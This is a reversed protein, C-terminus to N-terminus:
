IYGRINLTEIKAVRGGDILQYLQVISDIADDHRNKGMQTYTTMEEMAKRYDEDWLSEDLFYFERKVDPAYQIIKGEKSIKNSARKTTINMKYGEKRLMEDIDEAYFDGGNNEEFQGKQPKHKLIADVVKPRTYTKDRNDFVWGIIYTGHDFVAGIPMSLSDAGRYAPDCAFCIFHEEDPLEGNYFNLEDMPLLIGERVYPNQQYKSQWENDDLRSRMEKYYATSFGVDYAYKFNSEDHENLAPIKRFRADSRGELRAEERGIPDAPNWRTGVLLLQSGDNMRDIMKNQYEQYKNELRIPSLSEERDRVMDDVYLLGDRSVDIAGTWTGDIGRCTLTAFRDPKDLNVTYEESSKHQMNAKPFIKSFNYESTCILNLVEQYFGKALLGSHGGMANHSNPRRGMRWSLYFICLTSKGTRAPLSLGYTNIVRDSLDQLDQVVIGLTGKRPKYFQKASPRDKEMYWLYSDFLHPAEIRYSEEFVDYYLDGHPTMMQQYATDKVYKTHKLWYKRDFNENSEFEEGCIAVLDSLAGNSVPKETLYERIREASKIREQSTM